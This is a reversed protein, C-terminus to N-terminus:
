SMLVPLRGVTAIVVRRYPQEVPDGGGDGPEGGGIDGGAEDM